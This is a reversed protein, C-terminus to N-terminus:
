RRALQFIPGYPYFIGDSRRGFWQVLQTGDYKGLYTTDVERAPRYCAIHGLRELSSDICQGDICLYLSGRGAIELNWDRATYREPERQM